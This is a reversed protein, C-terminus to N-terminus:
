LDSQLDSYDQKIEECIEKLENEVVVSEKNFFGQQYVYYIGAALLGAFFLKIIGNNM